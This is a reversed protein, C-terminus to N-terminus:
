PHEVPRAVRNQWCKLGSYPMPCARALASVCVVRADACSSAIGDHAGHRRPALLRHKGTWRWARTGWWWSFVLVAADFAAGSPAVGLSAGDSGAQQRNGSVRSAFKRFV